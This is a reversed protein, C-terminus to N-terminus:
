LLESQDALLLFLIVISCPQNSRLFIWDLSFALFQLRPCRKRGPQTEDARHLLLVYPSWCSLWNTELHISPKEQQYLVRRLM